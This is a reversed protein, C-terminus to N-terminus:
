PQPQPQYIWYPRGLKRGIGEAVARTPYPGLVVGYGEEATAPALGKSPVGARGWREPLGQSGGHSRWGAGWDSSRCTWSGPRTEWPLGRWCGGGWRTSASRRPRPPSPWATSKKARTATSSPSDWGGACRSTSATGPPPSPSRALIIPPAVSRWTAGAWPTP